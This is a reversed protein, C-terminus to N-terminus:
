GDLALANLGANAAVGGAEYMLIHATRDCVVEDGPRGLVALAIQNCMTGSPAFLAAEKGLLEAVRECLANVTPDEFAAEDGVEANAMAQRMAASPQSKTDSFLEIM